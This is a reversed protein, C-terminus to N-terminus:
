QARQTDGDVYMYGPQNFIFYRIRYTFNSGETTWPGAGTADDTRLARHYIYFYQNDAEAELWEEGLISANFMMLATNTSYQNEVSTVFLDSAISTPYFFALTQPNFPLNHKVKFLVEEFLARNSDSITWKTGGSLSIVDFHKPDADPDVTLKKRRSDYKTDHSIDSGDAAIILGARM